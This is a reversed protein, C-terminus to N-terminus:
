KTKKLQKHRGDNYKSGQCMWISDTCWCCACRRRKLTSSLGASCTWTTSALALCPGFYSPYFSLFHGWVMPLVRVMGWGSSGPGSFIEFKCKCASQAEQSQPTEPTQTSFTSPSKSDKPPEEWLMSLEGLQQHEAWMLVPPALLAARGERNAWSACNSEWSVWALRAAM